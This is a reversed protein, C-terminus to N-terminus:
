EKEAPIEAAQNLLDGFEIQVPGKPLTKLMEDVLFAIREERSSGKHLMLNLLMNVPDAQWQRHATRWQNTQWLTQGTKCDTLRLSCSVVVASYVGSMIDASQDIQGRLVAGCKLKEALRELSIGALQGPTQIGLEKMVERVKDVHIKQYGKASLRAYVEDFLATEVGSEMSLNDMPLVAIVEPKLKEFEPHAEWEEKLSLDDEGYGASVSLFIFLLVVSPFFRDLCM